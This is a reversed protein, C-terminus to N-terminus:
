YFKGTMQSGHYVILPFGDEDVVVSSKGSVPQGFTYPNSDFDEAFEGDQIRELVSDIYAQGLLNQNEAYDTSLAIYLHYLNRCPQTPFVLKQYFAHYTFAQVSFLNDIWHELM